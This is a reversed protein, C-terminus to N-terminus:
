GNTGTHAEVQEQGRFLSPDTRMLRLRTEALRDRVGKTEPPYADYEVIQGKGKKVQGVVVAEAQQQPLPTGNIAAGFLDNQPM